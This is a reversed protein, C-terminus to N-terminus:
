NRNQNIMLDFGKKFVKFAPESDIMDKSKSYKVTKGNLALLKTVKGTYKDFTIKAPVLLTLNFFIGGTSSVYFIVLGETDSLSKYKRLSRVKARGNHRFLTDMTARGTYCRTYDNKYKGSSFCSASVNAISQSSIDNFTYIRSPISKTYSAKKSSCGSIFLLFMVSVILKKM